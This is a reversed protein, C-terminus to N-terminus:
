PVCAGEYQWMQNQRPQGFILRSLMKHLIRCKVARVCAEYQWFKIKDLSDLSIEFNECTARQYRFRM